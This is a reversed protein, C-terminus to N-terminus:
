GRAIIVVRRNQARGSETRNDGVPDASSRGSVRFVARPYFKRLYSFVAQARLRSLWKNSIGLNCTYGTIDFSKVNKGRLARVLSRLAERTEPSLSQSNRSFHVTLKKPLSPTVVAVPKWKAFLVTDGVVRISDGPMYNTGKGDARSNWGTFLYGKRTLSGSNGNVTHSSYYEYAPPPVVGGTSGNGSYAVSFGQVYDLQGYYGANANTEANLVTCASSNWPKGWSNAEQGGCDVNDTATNVSILKFPGPYVPRDSTYLISASGFAFGYNLDNTTVNQVVTTRMTVPSTTAELTPMDVRYIGGINWLFLSFYMSSGHVELNLPQFAWQDEWTFVKTSLPHVILQGASDFLRVRYIAGGDGNGTTSDDPGTCHVCTSNRALIYAYDGQIVLDNAFNMVTESAVNSPLVPLIVPIPSPSALDVYSLSVNRQDEFAPNGPNVSNRPSGLNDVFFLLRHTRDITFGRWLTYAGNENRGTERAILECHGNDLNIRSLDSYQTLWYLYGTATDVELDTVHAVGWVGSCSADSTDVLEDVGTTINFRRLDFSSGEHYLFGSDAAAQAQAVSNSAHTADVAVIM